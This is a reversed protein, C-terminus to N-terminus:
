TRPGRPRGMKAEGAPRTWNIAKCSPCAKPLSPWQGPAPATVMFERRCRLCRCGYQLVLGVVAVIAGAELATVHPAPLTAPPPPPDFGKTVQAGM